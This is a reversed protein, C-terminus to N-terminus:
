AKVARFSMHRALGRMLRAMWPSRFEEKVFTHPHLRPLMLFVHHTGTLRDVTLGTQRLWKTVQWFLFFQEIPQVGAGSDFPRGRLWCMIWALVMANSYNETTLVLTGGPKLVRHLEGLMARPHPVHELCECSFVLDFRENAFPLTQADAVALTVRQGHRVAKERAIGVARASFDVATVIGGAQALHISFDGAGCGVELIDRGAVDPALALASRHWSALSVADPSAGGHLREHWRDYLAATHEIV